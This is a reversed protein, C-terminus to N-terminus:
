GEDGSARPEISLRTQCVVVASVDAAGAATLLEALYELTTGTLIVDDVLVVSRGVVDGSVAYGAAEVVAHRRSIPTDRLRATSNRRSLVDGPVAGLAAAVAAALAPVPHDDRNPGPPVGIVIPDVPLDSGRVFAALRKEVAALARQSSLDKAAAILEGLQSLEDCDDRWYDGVM